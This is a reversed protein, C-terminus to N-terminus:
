NFTQDTDHHWSMSPTEMQSARQSPFEFLWYCFVKHIELCISSCVTLNGTIQSVIITIHHLTWMVWKQVANWTMDCPHSQLLVWSHDCLCGLALRHYYKLIPNSQSLPQFSICRKQRMDNWVEKCLLGIETRIRPVMFLMNWFIKFTEFNGKKEKCHYVSWKIIQLESM